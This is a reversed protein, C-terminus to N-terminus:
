QLVIQRRVLGEATEIVVLYIGREFNKLNLEAYSSTPNISMVLQGLSNYLKISAIEENESQIYVLGSSPNPYIKIEQIPNELINLGIDTIAICESTDVCGNENIIVAYNGNITAGYTQLTAGDIASSGKCDIWQYTIGIGSNEAQLTDIDITAVDTNITETCFEYVQVHGNYYKYPAGIAVVNGNDGLSVSYGFEDEAAEGDLDIGKQIWAAGDWYYVRVQGADEGAGDNYHAGIAVTNGDSSISVSVGSLDNPAEGNIDTGKQNWAAGDWYYIRVHGSGDGTEDNGPAGIAVTNGDSSLSVARGSSDFEAEGDIDEGKQIWAEGGWHYVRVHGAQSGADDNHNAGIALTNGDDSMAVSWGSQDDIAEGYIDIGKQTQANVASSVLLLTFLALIKNLHTM